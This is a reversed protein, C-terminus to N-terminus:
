RTEKVIWPKTGESLEIKSAVAEAAEHSPFTGVRVRYFGAAAGEGNVVYGAYGKQVLTAVMRNAEDRERM